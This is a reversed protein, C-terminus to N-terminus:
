GLEFSTVGYIKDIPLAPIYKTYMRVTAFVPEMNNQKALNIASINPEPVDLFVEEDPVIYMLSKLIAAAVDPTKAFLPGIKHGQFCKRIVGYGCIENSDDTVMLAHTDKQFLWCELFKSRPTSFFEADFDTIKSLDKPKIKTCRDSLNTTPPSITTYRINKHSFILGHNQYTSQMYLVGDIGVNLNKSYTEFFKYVISGIGSHRVDPRIIYFGGFAYDESYKVISVSGIVEDSLKVVFFGNPDTNYFCEADHIGPNWGEQRAWEIALDVQDRTMLKITVQKNEFLYSVM